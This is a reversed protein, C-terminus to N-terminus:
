TASSPSARRPLRSQKPPAKLTLKASTSKTTGINDTASALQVVGLMRQKGLLALAQGSLRVSLTIKRGAAVTFSAKGLVTTVRQSHRHKGTGVLQVSIITLEVSGHAATASRVALVARGNKVTVSRGSLLAVGAFPDPLATGSATGASAVTAPAVTLTTSASNNAPNPDGAGADAPLLHLWKSDIGAANQVSGPQTPRLVVTVTASAGNALTGVDCSLPGSASACTGASPTASVLQAGAPLPDTVTVDPVPDPGNDTASLTYTVDQGATVTAPAATESLAIDAKPCGQVSGYVGPCMDQTVDGFGDHDADPELQAAVALALGNQNTGQTAFITQLLQSYSPYQQSYSLGQSLEQPLTPDADFPFTIDSYPNNTKYMPVAGNSYLGIVDGAKVPIRIPYADIGAPHPGATTAAVATYAGSNNAGPLVPPPGGRAVWFEVTPSSQAGYSAFSWSTLVGDSPVTYANDFSALQIWCANYGTNEVVHTSDPLQGVEVTGPPTTYTLTIRGDATGVGHTEGLLTASPAAYDGGGGGGAGIGFGPETGGGGGAALYGGGGGGGGNYAPDGAGAGGQTGVGAGGGADSSPGSVGGNGPASVTGPGGGTAPGGGSGPAGTAGAAQDNGGDGGFAASAHGGCGGGGGAAVLV